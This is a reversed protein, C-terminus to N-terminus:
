KKDKQELAKLIREPTFPLSRMRVGLADRVANAVAPLAAIQAAEGADKAGFPGKPDMTEIHFTDIREFTDLATPMRYDLFNPSLVLGHDQPTDEFLVQGLGSTATGQQQGEVMGPHLAHGCDHAVAMKLVKVQGTETDIEVEAAQSGCSYAASMNGVGTAYNVMEVDPSATGRGIVPSGKGYQLGRVVELLPISREPSGKVRIQRERLELDQPNAELRDAAFGLLQRRVDETAARVARGSCFTTRSGFTGPDVPTTETDVKTVNVEHLPIGLDEAVMMAMVTEAGQGIDTFGGILTVSGDEAMKIIASSGDHGGLKTGVVGPSVGIGVGRVKGDRVERRGRKEKWGISKAVSALTEDFGFTTIRFQNITTEGPKIANRFRMELPDLGLEEAMDDLLSDIAFRAQPMAHGILAGAYPKNTYPRYADYRMHPVRLPITMTGGPIYISLAGVSSYGGGDAVLKMQIATITGDKKLGIKTTITMAHRRRGCLFVDEQSYVIKVPRGTKRSLLLAAFDLGFPEHKGGFGAGVYPQIIRLKSLPLGLGRAMHRYTIYPSQKSAWLTAKGTHDWLGIAAHPEIFGHMIFQTEFRDERILYAEKFGEEVDGFRMHTQASLNNKVHDHIQPAGEQMAEEPDFVAPLEEYDVRILSLAEEAADEDVAAVAAIEDGIYRVKDTQLPFKDRTQPLFGYKQGQADKGTVAAKVGPVRLARSFDINLIRAHPVTSRLVKGWLMGPLVLDATYRAEGSAKPVSDVRPVRKGIVAYEAM